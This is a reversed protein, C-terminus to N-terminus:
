GPFRRPRPPPFVPPTRVAQRGERRPRRRQERHPLHGDAGALLVARHHQRASATLKWAPRGCQPTGTGRPARRRSPPCFPALRVVAPPPRQAELGPGAGRRHGARCAPRTGQEDQLRQQSAYHQTRIRHLEDNALSSSLVNAAVPRSFNPPRRDPQVRSPLCDAAASLM